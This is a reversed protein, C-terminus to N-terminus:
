FNKQGSEGGTVSAAFPAFRIYDGIKLKLVLAVKETIAAQATLDRLIGKSDTSASNKKAHSLQIEGRTVRFNERACSIIHEKQSSIRERIATVKARQSEKVTRIERLASSVIPGAEFIDVMDTIHFGEGELIKLAPRTNEHVQGIEAKVKKPLLPIYIPHEPMLEAIFKKNKISLYDARPYDMEFFHKGLADWFRSRGRKNVVGRLEAIVTKDFLYPYEAMFLFRALSLFKGNRNKRYEPLLFLSTIESPGNHEQLLHLVDIEHRVKISKSEHVSKKIQYAYFPEFGGVKSVIGCTGIVRAEALDEMVFLYAEGSPKTGLRPRKKIQQFSQTSEFIRKELYKRDRPLTTLGFEAKLSLRYIDELDKAEVPRIYLM